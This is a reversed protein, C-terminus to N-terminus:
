FLVNNYDYGVAEMEYVFVEELTIPLFDAIAPNLTSIKKEMVERSCRAVIQVMSGQATFSIINEMGLAEKEIMPKFAAQVKCFNESIDETSLVVIKNGKHIIAVTDCLDELEKLNHSAIIVSMNIEYVMDCLLKRVGVRIVPDLGDFAEDLLMYEPESAMAVILAAQRRMGKSFTKIRKKDDLPFKEMLSKYREENWTPYIGRYFNAVDRITPFDFFMDDSVFFIKEKMKMNEFIEEGDINISGYSPKYVGAICRLFTSKGSGNPGVLGYISGKPIELNLSVLANEEDFRKNLDSAIIM